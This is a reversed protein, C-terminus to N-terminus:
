KSVNNKEVYNVKHIIPKAITKKIVHENKTM